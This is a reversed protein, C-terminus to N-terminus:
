SVKTCKVAKLGHNKMKLGAGERGVNERKQGEGGVNEGGGGEKKKKKKKKKKKLEGVLWGPRIDGYEM